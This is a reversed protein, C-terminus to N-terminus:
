QRASVRSMPHTPGGRDCRGPSEGLPELTAQLIELLAPNGRGTMIARQITLRLNSEGACAKIARSTRPKDALFSDQGHHLDLGEAGVQATGDDKAMGEYIKIGQRGGAFFGRAPELFGIGLALRVDAV